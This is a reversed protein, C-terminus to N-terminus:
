SSRANAAAQLLTVKIESACRYPHPLVLAAGPAAKSRPLRNCHAHLRHQSVSPSLWAQGWARLTLQNNQLRGM